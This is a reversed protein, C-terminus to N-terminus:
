ISCIRTVAGGGPLVSNHYRAFSARKVTIAEFFNQRHHALVKPRFMCHRTNLLLTTIKYDRCFTRFTIANHFNLTSRMMTSPCSTWLQAQIVGTRLKYKTLRKRKFWGMFLNTRPTNQELESQCLEAETHCQRIESPTAVTARSSIARKQRKSPHDTQHKVLMASHYGTRAVDNANDHHQPFTHANRFM